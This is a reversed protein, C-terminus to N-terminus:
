RSKLFTEIEEPTHVSVVNLEKDIRKVLGALVKGAGLEGVQVVEKEKLFLVTERWRVMGTVQAVLLARIEEPEWVEQATVNAVVPVSPIRMATVALAEQMVKAAPAMLSCHFPASVPLKVARKVGYESALLVARDIADVTGSIVVQGGGNDNAAECVGQEAARSAIAKATEFDVGILAAMSGKGPPVAEQMADGRIRLLKATDTLSIAGAACLASYEGLSHGATYHCLHPFLKNGQKEMAKVIAMSVAMLAPQTNRTLNLTEQPGEFIVKSLREGLADDVEEFVHRAELFTDFIAKGMGVAQSGQGPFVIAQKM